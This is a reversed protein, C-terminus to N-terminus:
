KAKSKKKKSSIQRELLNRIANSHKSDGLVDLPTEQLLDKKNWKAKHELLMKVVQKHGSVV